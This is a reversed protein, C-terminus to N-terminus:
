ELLKRSVRWDLAITSNGPIEQFHFNAPSASELRNTRM